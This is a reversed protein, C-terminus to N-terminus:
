GAESTRKLGDAELQVNRMTIRSTFPELARGLLGRQEVSLTVQVAGGEDNSLRHGAVLTLGPWNSEWVFSREPILETVTWVLTRLRPQKIRAQSGMALPGSTLRTVKTMSPTWQPWREVDTLVAWVVEPLANIKTSVEIGM